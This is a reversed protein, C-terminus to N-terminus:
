RVAELVAADYLCQWRSLVRFGYEVAGIATRFERHSVQAFNRVPGDEYFLAKYVVEGRSRNSTRVHQVSLMKPNIMTKM